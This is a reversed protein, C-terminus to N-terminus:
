LDNPTYWDYRCDRLWDGKGRSVSEEAFRVAIKQWVCGGLSQARCIWRQSRPKWKWYWELKEAFTDRAHTRYCESIKENVLCARRQTFKRLNWQRKRSCVAIHVVPFIVHIACSTRTCCVNSDAAASHLSGVKPRAEGSVANKRVATVIVWTSKTYRLKLLVSWVGVEKWSDRVNAPFFTHLLRQASGCRRLFWKERNEVKLKWRRWMEGIKKGGTKIEAARAVYSAHM